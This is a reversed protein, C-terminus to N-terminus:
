RPSAGSGRTGGTPQRWTHIPARVPVPRPAAPSGGRVGGRPPAYALV